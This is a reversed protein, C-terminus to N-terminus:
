TLDGNRRALRRHLVYSYPLLFAAVSLVPVLVFLAAYRPLLLGPLTAVAAAKFLRGGTDHTKKWVLDSKLTWPTRVGAFWNRKMHPLMVGVYYFVVFCGIAIVRNPSVRVGMSALLIQAHVSLLFLFFIVLFGDYYRRFSAIAERLSRLRPMLLLLAALVALALPMIFLGWAKPLTGDVEGHINWHAPVREPARAYCALSAAFAVAVIVVVALTAGRM